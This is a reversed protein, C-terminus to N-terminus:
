RLDFLESNRDGKLFSRYHNIFKDMVYSIMDSHRDNLEHNHFNVFNNIDSRSFIEFFQQQYQEFGSPPAFESLTLEDIFENGDYLNYIDMILYNEGNPLKVVPVINPEMMMWFIMWFNM